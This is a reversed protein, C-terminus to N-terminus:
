QMRFLHLSATMTKIRSVRGRVVPDFDIVCSDKCFTKSVFTLVGGAGRDLFSGFVLFKRLTLRLFKDVCTQSGHAEQVLIVDAHGLIKSLYKLKKNRVQKNVCFLGRANWTIVRLGLNLTDGFPSFVTSFVGSILPPLPAPIQTLPAEWLRLFRRSTLKSNPWIQCIGFRNKNKGPNLWWKSWTIGMVSSWSNHSGFNFNSTPTCPFWFACFGSEWRKRPRPRTMKTQPSLSFVQSSNEVKEILM